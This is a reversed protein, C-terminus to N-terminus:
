IATSSFDEPSTSPFPLSTAREVELTNEKLISISGLYFTSDDLHHEFSRSVVPTCRARQSSNRPGRDSM